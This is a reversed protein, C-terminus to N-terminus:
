VGSERWKARMATRPRAVQQGRADTSTLSPPRRKRNMVLWRSPSFSERELVTRAASALSIMLPGACVLRGTANVHSQM